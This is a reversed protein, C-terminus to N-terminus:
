MASDQLEVACVDVHDSPSKTDKRAEKTQDKWFCLETEVDRSTLSEGDEHCM